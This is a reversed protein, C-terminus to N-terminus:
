RLGLRTELEGPRAVGRLRAVPYILLGVALRDLRAHLYGRGPHAPKELALDLCFSSTKNLPLASRMMRSIRAM